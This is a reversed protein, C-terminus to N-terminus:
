TNFYKGSHEKLEEINEDFSFNFLLNALAYGERDYASTSSPNFDPFLEITNLKTNGSM